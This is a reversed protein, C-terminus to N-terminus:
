RGEKTPAMPESYTKEYKCHSGDTPDIARRPRKELCEQPDAPNKVRWFANIVDQQDEMSFGFTPADMMYRFLESREQSATIWQFAEHGTKEPVYAPM